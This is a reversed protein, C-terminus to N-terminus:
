VGLYVPEMCGPLSGLAFMSAIRLPEEQVFARLEEEQPGLQLVGLLFTMVRLLLITMAQQPHPHCLNPQLLLDQPVQHVMPNMLLLVGRLLLVMNKKLLYKM